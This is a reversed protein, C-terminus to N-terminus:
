GGRQHGRLGPADASGDAGVRRGGTGWPAGRGPRKPWGFHHNKTPLEMPKVWGDLTIEITLPITPQNSPSKM